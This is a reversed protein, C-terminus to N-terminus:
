FMTPPHGCGPAPSAMDMAIAQSVRKQALSVAGQMYARQLTQPRRHRTHAMLDGLEVQKGLIQLRRVRLSFADLGICGRLDQSPTPFLVQPSLHAKLYAWSSGLVMGETILVLLPPHSGRQTKYDWVRLTMGVRVEEKGVEEVVVDARNLDAPRWGTVDLLDLFTSAEKPLYPIRLRFRRYAQDGMPVHHRTTLLTKGLLDSYRHVAVPLSRLHVWPPTLQLYTLLTRLTSSLTSVTKALGSRVVGGLFWCVTDVLDVM